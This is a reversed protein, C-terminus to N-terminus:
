RLEPELPYPGMVRNAHTWVIYVVWNRGDATCRVLYEGSSSYHSRFEYQGCGRINNQALTATIGTNVRENWSGPYTEAVSRNQPPEAQGCAALVGAALVGILLGKARLKM